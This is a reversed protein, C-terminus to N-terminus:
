VWIRDETRLRRIDGLSRGGLLHCRFARVRLGFMCALDVEVCLSPAWLGHLCDSRALWPKLFGGKDQPKSDSNLVKTNIHNKSGRTM